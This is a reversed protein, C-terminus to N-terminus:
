VRSVQTGGVASEKDFLISGSKSVEGYIELETWKHGTIAVIRNYHIAFKYKHGIIGKWKYDVNMNGAILQGLLQGSNGVNLEYVWYKDNHFIFVRNEFIFMSDITKEECIDKNNDKLKLNLTCGFWEKM